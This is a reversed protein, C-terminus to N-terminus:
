QNHYEGNKYVVRDGEKVSNFLDSSFEVEEFSEIEGNVNNDLDYLLITNSYKEGVEYVHEDIRKSSLYANQKEIKEKIMENIDENVIKTADIDIIFEDDKKRLVSGLNAGEPM